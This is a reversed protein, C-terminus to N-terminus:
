KKVEAKEIKGISYIYTNKGLNFLSISTSTAPFEKFKTGNDKYVVAKDDLLVAIRREAAYLAKVGSTYKEEFAVGFNPTYCTLLESNTSGHKSLVLVTQGRDSFTYASLTDTGYDKNEAKKLNKIFSIKNDGIAVVNDNSVFRIDIIATGPYEFTSLPEKYDFDFIYVKSYIEGDRSGIVAVAAYKADDSLDVALISDHACNWVFTKTKYTNGLVTLKSTAADALTAIAINGKKGIACTIIKESEPTKGEFLTETRNEVRYRNDNRNYVIAKNGKVNMVPNSYTHQTEKIQKATTDLSITGSDTLMFINGNLVTMQRISSSNVKHPFGSGPSLSTFFTRINDNIQYVSAIGLTEAAMFLLLLIVFLTAAIRLILVQRKNLKRRRRPKAATNKNQGTQNNAPM